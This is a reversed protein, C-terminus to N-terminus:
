EMGGHNRLLEAMEIKGLNNAVGLPTLGSPTRSNIDAGKEILLEAVDKRDYRAARHLPTHGEDDKANADAGRDILMGAMDATEAYHLPTWGWEDRANVSAGGELTKEALTRDGGKVAQHLAQNKEKQEKSIDDKTPTKPRSITRGHRSMRSHQKIWDAKFTVQKEPEMSLWKQHVERYETCDDAWVFGCVASIAYLVALGSVIVGFSILGVGKLCFMSDCPKQSEKYGGWFMLAAAGGLNAALATDVTPYTYGDCKPKKSPDPYYQVTDM